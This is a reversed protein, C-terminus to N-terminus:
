HGYTSFGGKPKPAKRYPDGGGRNSTTHTGHFPKFAEGGSTAGPMPQGFGASRM